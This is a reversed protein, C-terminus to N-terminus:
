WSWIPTHLDGVIGCWLNWQLMREFTHVFALACWVNRVPGSYWCKCVNGHEPQHFVIIAFFVLFDPVRIM